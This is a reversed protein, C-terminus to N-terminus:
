GATGSEPIARAPSARERIVYRYVGRDNTIGLIAEAPLDPMFRERQYGPLLKKVVPNLLQSAGSIAIDLIARSFLETFIRQAGQGFRSAFGNGTGKKDLMWWGPKDPFKVPVLNQSNLDCYDSSLPGAIQFFLVEFFDRVLWSAGSSLGKLFVEIASIKPVVENGLKYPEQLSALASPYLFKYRDLLQFLVKDRDSPTEIEVRYFFGNKRTYYRPPMTDKLAERFETIAIDKLYDVGMSLGTQVLLSTASGVLGSLLYGSWSGKSRVDETYLRLFKDADDENSFLMNRPLLGPGPKFWGGAQLEFLLTKVAPERILPVYLRQGYQVAATAQLLGDKSPQPQLEDETLRAGLQLFVMNGGVNLFQRDEFHAKYAAYELLFPQREAGLAPIASIKLLTIIAIIGSALKRASLLQPFPM